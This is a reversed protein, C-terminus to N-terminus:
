HATISPSGPGKKGRSQSGDKEKQDNGGAKDNDVAEPEAGGCALVNRGELEAIVGLEKGIEEIRGEEQAGDAHGQFSHKDSQDHAINWGIEEGVGLALMFVHENNKQKEWKPDTKDDPGHTPDIDQSIGTQDIVEKHLGV